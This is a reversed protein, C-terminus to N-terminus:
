DTLISGQDPTSGFAPWGEAVPKGTRAFAQICDLFTERVFKQDETQIFEPFGPV